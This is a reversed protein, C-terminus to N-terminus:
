LPWSHQTRPIGVPYEDVVPVKIPDFNCFLELCEKSFWAFLARPTTSIDEPPTLPVTISMRKINDLAILAFARLMM